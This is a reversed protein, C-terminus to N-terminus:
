SRRARSEEVPLATERPHGAATDAQVHDTPMATLFIETMIDEVEFPPLHAGIPTIAMETASTIPVKEAM